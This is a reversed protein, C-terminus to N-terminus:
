FEHPAEVPVEDSSLGDRAFATREFDLAGLFGGLRM